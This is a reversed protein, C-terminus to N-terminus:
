RVIALTRKTTGQATRATVTVRYRGARPAPIVLRFTTRAGVRRATARGTRVVVARATVTARAAVRGTVIITRGRRTVRVSRIASAPKAAPRARSPSTAAAPAPSATAGASPAAPTAQVLVPAGTAAVAAQADIQGAGSTLDVGPVDTDSATGRLIARIEETTLGPRAQKMLAITAAVHPSAMSTGTYGGFGGPATSVIGVGPAVVDPKSITTPPGGNIAWTSQGRSSGNWVGRSADTAGVTIVEPYSAPSAVPGGTNGSSFVPTIGMAIWTQIMPRFWENQPGLASWSNNIVTPHDATAPNGDPDTMWQAAALLSSSTSTGDARLAKAVVVQADPAVGVRAGGTNHAVMTGITHTGHGNDDYPTPSGGIFDRWAVVSGALQSNSADVGTDISGIRVGRGTTGYTTWAGRARIADVGWGTMSPDAPADATVRIPIDLDIARVEPNADLDALEAATARTAIANVLWFRRAPADLDALVEGQSRAATARLRRITTSSALDDDTAVQDTLTIVVPVRTDAPQSTVEAALEPSLKSGEATATAALTGLGTLAGALAVLLGHGFGRSSRRGQRGYM